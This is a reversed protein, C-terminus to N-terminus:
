DRLRVKQSHAPERGGGCQAGAYGKMASRVEGDLADRRGGRGAALVLRAQADSGSGLLRGTRELAHEIDRACM